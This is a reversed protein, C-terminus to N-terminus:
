AAGKNRAANRQATVRAFCDACVRRIDGGNQNRSMPRMTAADVLRNCETCRKTKSPDKGL